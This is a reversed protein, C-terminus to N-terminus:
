CLPKKPGPHSRRRRTWNGTPREGLSRQQFIRFLEPVPPLDLEALEDPIVGGAFGLSREFYYRLADAAEPDKGLPGGFYRRALAEAQEGSHRRLKM